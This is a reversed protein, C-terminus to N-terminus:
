SGEGKKGGDIGREQSHYQTKSSQSDIIGYSPTENRKKHRRDIKNLEDLAIEWTGDKNWEQFYHFVTGYPPYEKPLMRWQCGTKCVYLIANIITRREHKLPRGFVRKQDFFPKIIEWQKDKLDTPYM